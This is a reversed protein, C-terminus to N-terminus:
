AEDRARLRALARRCLEPEIIIVRGKTQTMGRMKRYYREVDPNEALVQKALDTPLDVAEGKESDHVAVRPNRIPEVDTLEERM